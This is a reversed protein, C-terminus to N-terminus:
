WLAEQADRFQRDRKWAWYRRAYNVERSPDDPNRECRLLGMLTDYDIEFEDEFTMGSWLFKEGPAPVINPVRLIHVGRFWTAVPQKTFPDFLTRPPTQEEAQVPTRDSHINRARNRLGENYMRWASYQQDSPRRMMAKVEVVMFVQLDREGKGDVLHMFRHIFLDHDFRTLYADAPQLRPEDRFWAYVEDELRQRHGCNPCPGSRRYPTTM